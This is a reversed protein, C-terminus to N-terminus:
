FRADKQRRDGANMLLSAACYGGQHSRREAQLSGKQPEQWCRFRTTPASTGCQDLDIPAVAEIAQSKGREESFWSRCSRRRIVGVPDGHPAHQRFADDWSFSM